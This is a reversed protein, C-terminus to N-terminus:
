HLTRTIRDIMEVSMALYSCDHSGSGEITQVFERMGNEYCQTDDLVITKTSTGQRYQIKCPCPQATTFIHIKKNNQRLLSHVDGNQNVSSILETQGFLLACLDTMHSLYFAYGGYPSNPDATYSLSTEPSQRIEERKSLLLKDFCLTSGGLFPINLKDSRSLLTEAEAKSTTFPKDVFVPKGADMCTQALQFHTDARRTCILVADCAHILEEANECISPISCRSLLYDVREPKDIPALHTVRYGSFEKQVNFLSAFFEAHKSECGIIGIKNL